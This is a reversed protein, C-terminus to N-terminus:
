ANLMAMTNQKVRQNLVTLSVDAMPANPIDLTNLNVHKSMATLFANGMFVHLMVINRKANKNRGTLFANVMFVNLMAMIDRKAYNM